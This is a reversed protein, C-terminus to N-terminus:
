RASSRPSRDGGSACRTSAPPSRGVTSSSSPPSTTMRTRSSSREPRTTPRSCSRAARAYSAACSASRRAGTRSTTCALSAVVIDFAGDELALPEGLDAVAFTGGPVRARARALMEPSADLGVVEAGQEALWASHRGAGCGADLVRRGAVPPLLARLAPQEYLALYPSHEVDAVYDAAMADYTQRARTM